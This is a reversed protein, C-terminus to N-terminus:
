NEIDYGCYDKIQLLPVPLKMTIINKLAAELYEFHDFPKYKPPNAEDVFEKPPEIKIGKSVFSFLGLSYRDEKGGQHMMADGGFVIFSSPTTLDVDVWEETITPLKVQLGNVQNQLLISMFTLDRHSYQGLISSSEDSVYYKFYRTQHNMSEDLGFGVDAIDYSEVLMKSVTEFIEVLLKSMSLSTQCFSDNGSGPWMLNTFSQTAEVFTPNDIALAEYFNNNLPSRVSGGFFPKPNTNKTKIEDPLDFLPKIAEFIPIDAAATYIAKFCGYEEMAQKVSTQASVWSDSGHKLNSLDIVPITDM